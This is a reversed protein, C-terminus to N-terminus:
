QDVLVGLRLHKFGADFDDVQDTGEGLAAFDAGEAAGANALGDDDHLQDIVDRLHVAAKGNEGSDTFAGAFAVIEVM